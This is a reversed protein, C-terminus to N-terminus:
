FSIADLAIDGSQRYTKYLRWGYHAARPGCAMRRLAMAFAREERTHLFTFGNEEGMSRVIYNATMDDSARNMLAQANIANVIKTIIPFEAAQPKIKTELTM